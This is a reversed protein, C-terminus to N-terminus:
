DLTVWAKLRDSKRAMDMVYQIYAGDQISPSSPRNHYINDLFNYLSHAHARIWGLALKSSPFEGGPSKYRQVSEIRKFGKEGGFDGEPLTNDYAELWNPDMLNFRMAGKDGHIEVALEDNSGTAIKSSEITGTGGNKMKVVLLSLDEAEVDVLGGSPHPRKPYLVVNHAFIEKYEGLLFYILDLVHSGLDVLVGGGASKEQKWGIPKNPDVSGSHLYVARFSLVKGLFGAEALEKARLIAPFFRNQFAMQSYVKVSDLVDLVEKTEEYSATLPKDCYVHKGAKLARILHDKHVNNPTCINIVQIDENTFLDEPDHTAFEFGLDEKAKEAKSLTRNCIGVLRVKFPLGEYYLPMNRYAYSHAKGMAGYGIIGVGIEKM